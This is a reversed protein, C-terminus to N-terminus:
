KNIEKHFVVEGGFIKSYDKATNYFMKRSFKGDPYKVRFKGNLCNDLQSDGTRINFISWFLFIIKDIM